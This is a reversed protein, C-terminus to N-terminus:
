RLQHFLFYINNLFERAKEIIWGIYAIKVGPGEAKDLGLKSMQFNETWM